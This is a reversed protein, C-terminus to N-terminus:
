QRSESRSDTAEPTAWPSTLSKLFEVIEQIELASLVVPKAGDAVGYYAELIVARELTDVSGDHMYPATLAVNRLSPTKFSGIDKPDGTVVYRGLKAIDADDIIAKDKAVPDSPVRALIETLRRQMDVFGIGRRHYRGDTLLADSSGIQHCTTCGARGRFLDLGRRAAMSLATKHGAFLYRDLPSDAAVLTREYCALARALNEVSVAPESGPFARALAEGYEGKSRLVALLSASDAIGHEIPNLIPKLAQAELSGERGDWFFERQWAANLLTPANRTGKQGGKGTAVRLGDAFAKDSRHCSACSIDRDASLNQDSFFQRGVEICEPSDSKYDNTSYGSPLGVTAGVGSEAALASGSVLLLFVILHSVVGRCITLCRVAIRVLRRKSAPMAIVNAVTPLGVSSTGFQRFRARTQLHSGSAENRDTGWAPCETGGRSVKAM